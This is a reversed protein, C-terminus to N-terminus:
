APQKFGIAEALALRFRTLAASESPFDDRGVPSVGNREDVMIIGFQGRREPHEAVAFRVFKPNGTIESLAM